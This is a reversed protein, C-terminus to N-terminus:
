RDCVIRMKYRKDPNNQIRIWNGQSQLGKRGSTVQCNLVGVIGTEEGVDAKTKWEVTGFLFCLLSQKMFFLFLVKGGFHLIFQFFGCFM